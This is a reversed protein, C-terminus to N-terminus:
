TVVFDERALENADRVAQAAQKVCDAEYAAIEGAAIRAKLYAGKSQPNPVDPLQNGDGDTGGSVTEPYNRERAVADRFAIASVGDPLTITLETTFEAM